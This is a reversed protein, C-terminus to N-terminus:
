DILGARIAAAVAAAREPVGLKDYIRTLHTKVTSEAINMNAAIEGASHGAAVERLIDLERDSLSPVSDNRRARIEQALGEHLKAPLVTEGRAIARIAVALQEPGATKLEYGAAGAEIMSYVLDSTWDGSLVLVRLDPDEELVGDLVKGGPLDPLGLDLVCVDPHTSKILEIGQRGNEAEGVLQLDDRASITRALAERFLPHDEIIVVTTPTSGNTTM